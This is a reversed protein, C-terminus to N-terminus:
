YIYVCQLEINPLLLLLVTCVDASELLKIDFLRPNESDLAEFDAAQKGPDVYVFM